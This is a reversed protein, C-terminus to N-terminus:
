YNLMRSAARFSKLLDDKKIEEGKLAYRDYCDKIVGAMTAPELAPINKERKFEDIASIIETLINEELPV